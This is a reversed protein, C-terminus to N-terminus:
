MPLRMYVKAETPLRMYDYISMAEVWSDGLSPRRGASWEYLFIKNVFAFPLLLADAPRLGLRPTHSIAFLYKNRFIIMSFNYSTVVEIFDLM